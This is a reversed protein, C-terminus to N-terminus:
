SWGPVIGSLRVAMVLVAIVLVVRVIKEGKEVQFRSGIWGGTGNGIALVTGLLWDVKGELAFVVLASLTYVAIIFVKHSNCRVLDLGTIMVLTAILIFGVGAQIFGGYIGVLFFAVVSVLRRAPTMEVEAQKLRRTPNWLILALAMIMIGALMQNFLKDPLDIAIRAGVIAGALAPIAFQLSLKFNSIGKSRFGLIAIINQVEIAVRNTGNAVASPLGMFILVPLTLLSGGGAMTNIIGAAVGAVLILAIKALDFDM